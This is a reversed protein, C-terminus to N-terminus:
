ASVGLNEIIIDYLLGVRRNWIFINETNEPIPISNSQMVYGWKRSNEAVRLEFWANTDDTCYRLEASDGNANKFNIITSNPTFSRGWLKLTYDGNIIYGNNWTVSEEPDTLDLESDDIYTPPKPEAEGEIPNVTSQVVVYGGDCNNTLIFQSLVAPQEFQTIFQSQGTTVNMNGQAVGVCEIYYVTNNDFGSFTYSVNMEPPTSQTNYQTGSTAILLHTSDYLNFTWNNLLIGEAQDYRASFQYSSNRVIGSPISWLEFEPTSYCNFQIPLSPQSEEGSSNFTTLTAQYSQTASNALTGANAPLPFTFSYWPNLAGTYVPTTGTTDDSKTITLKCGVVQDGGVVNFRFTYGQTADFASVSYLIPTTLAM